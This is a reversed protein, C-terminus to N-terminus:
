LLRVSKLKLVFCIGIAQKVKKDYREKTKTGKSKDREGNFTSFHRKSRSEKKSLITSQPECVGGLYIVYRLAYM